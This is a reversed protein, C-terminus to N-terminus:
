WAERVRVATPFKYRRASACNTTRTRLGRWPSRARAGADGLIILNGECLYDVGTDARQCRYDRIAVSGKHAVEAPPLKIPKGDCDLINLSRSSTHRRSDQSYSMPAYTTTRALSPQISIGPDERARWLEEAGESRLEAAAKRVFRLPVLM